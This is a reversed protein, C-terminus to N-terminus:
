IRTKIGMARVVCWGAWGQFLGLAGFLFCIATVIWAWASGSPMAWRFLLVLGITISLIGWILRVAKGRSDINCQLGM